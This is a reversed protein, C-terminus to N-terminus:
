VRNESSDVGFILYWNGKEVGVMRCEILVIYYWEGVIFFCVVDGVGDFCLILIVFDRNVLLFLLFKLIILFFLLVFKLRLKLFRKVVFLLLEFVLFLLFKM